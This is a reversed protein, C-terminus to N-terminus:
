YVHPWDVLSLFKRWWCDAGLPCAHLHYLPPNFLSAWTELIQPTPCLPLTLPHLLSPVHTGPLAPFVHSSVCRIALTSKANLLHAVSGPDKLDKKTPCSHKETTGQPGGECANM